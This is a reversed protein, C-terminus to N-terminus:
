HSQIATFQVTGEAGCSFCFREKKDKPHLQSALGRPLRGEEFLMAGLHSGFLYFM